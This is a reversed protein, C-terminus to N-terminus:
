NLSYPIEQSTIFKLDILGNSLSAITFDTLFVPLHTVTSSPHGYHPIPESIQAMM